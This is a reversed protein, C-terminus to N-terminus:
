AKKVWAQWTSNVKSRIYITYPNDRMTYRQIVVNSSCSFVELMGYNTCPYNLSTDATTRRFYIGPTTLDNLNTMDAITAQVLGMMNYGNMLVQGSVKINGNVDLAEASSPNNIGVKKKRLSVLPTGQPIVYYLDLPATTGMQDCIQM